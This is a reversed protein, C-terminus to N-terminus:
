TEPIISEEIVQAAQTVLLAKMADKIDKEVKASLQTAQGDFEKLKDALFTVDADAISQDYKALGDFYKSIGKVSTQLNNNLEHINGLLTINTLSDRQIEIMKAHDIRSYLRLNRTPPPHLRDHKIKKLSQFAKHIGGVACMDDAQLDICAISVYGFANKREEVLSMANDLNSFAKVKLAKNFFDSWYFTSGYAIILTAMKEIEELNTKLASKEPRGLSNSCFSKAIFASIKYWMLAGMMPLAKVVDCRNDKTCADKASTGDSDGYPHPTQNGACKKINNCIKETSFIFNDQIGLDEKVRSCMAEVPITDDIPRPSPPSLLTTICRQDYHARLTRLIFGLGRKEYNAKLNKSQFFKTVIPEEPQDILMHIVNRDNEVASLDLNDIGTLQVSVKEMCTILDEVNQANPEKKVKDLKEIFSDRAQFFTKYNKPGNPTGSPRM